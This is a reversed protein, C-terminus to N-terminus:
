SAIQKAGNEILIGAILQANELDVRWREADTDAMLSTVMALLQRLATDGYIGRYNVDAGKKVTEVVLSLDLSQVASILVRGLSQRTRYTNAAFM